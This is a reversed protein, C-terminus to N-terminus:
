TARAIAPSDSVSVVPHVEEIRAVLEVRGGLPEQENCISIDASAACPYPRRREFQEIISRSECPKRSVPKSRAWRDSSRGGNSWSVLVGPTKAAPSTRCRETFRTAQGDALASGCDLLDVAIEGGESGHPEAGSDM